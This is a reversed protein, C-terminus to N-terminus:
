AVIAAVAVILAAVSFGIGLLVVGVPLAVEGLWEAVRSFGQWCGGGRRAAAVEGGPVALESRHAPGGASQLAADGPQAWFTEKTAGPACLAESPSGPLLPQTLARPSTGATALTQYGPDKLYLLLHMAVPIVYCVVCVASAGANGWVGGDAPLLVTSPLSTRCCM